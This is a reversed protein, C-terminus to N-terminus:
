TRASVRLWLEAQGEGARHGGKGKLTSHLLFASCLLKSGRQLVPSLVVGLREQPGNGEERKGRM